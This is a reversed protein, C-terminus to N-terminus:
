GFVFRFRVFCFFVYSPTHFLSTLLLLTERFAHLMPHLNINTYECILLLNMLIRLWFFVATSVYLLFHFFVVSAAFIIILFRFYIFSSFKKGNAFSVSCSPARLLQKCITLAEWGFPDLNIAYVDRQAVWLYGAFFHVFLVFNMCCKQAYDNSSRASTQELLNAAPMNGM